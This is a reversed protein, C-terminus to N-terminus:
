GKYLGRAGIASVGRLSYDVEVLYWDAETRNGRLDKQGIRVIDGPAAMIEVSGGGDTGIYSGWELEAKGGIPWASVRAIWPRSYRRANYSGRDMSVRALVRPPAPDPNDPVPATDIEALRIAEALQIAEEAQRLAQPDVTSLLDRVSQTLVLVRLAALMANSATTIATTTTTM